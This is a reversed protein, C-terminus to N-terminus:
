TLAKGVTVYCIRSDNGLTKSLFRNPDIVIPAALNSVVKDADVARYDPWETAVVLAAADRLAAEPALV